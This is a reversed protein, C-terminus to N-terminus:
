EVGVGDYNVVGLASPQSAYYAALADIQEDTLAAAIGYMIANDRTKDRYARLSQALYDQYQGALKPFTPGVTKAGDPGHCAVCTASAEEGLAVDGTVPADGGSSDVQSLYAAINATEEASLNYANAHMTPHARQGNKYAALAAQIYEPHQGALRPIHYTPYANTYGPVAHCGSCTAFAYKGAVPDADQAFATSSGSILWAGAVALGALLTLKM